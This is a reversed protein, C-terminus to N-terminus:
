FSSAWYNPYKGVNEFGMMMPYCELDQPVLLFVSTRVGKLLIIAPVFVRLLQTLLLIPFTGRHSHECICRFPLDIETQKRPHNQVHCALLSAQFRHPLLQHALDIQFFWRRGNVLYVQSTCLEFLSVFLLRTASFTLATWWVPRMRCSCSTVSHLMCCGPVVITISNRCAVDHVRTHQVNTRSPSCLLLCTPCSHRSKTQIVLLEFFSSNSVTPPTDSTQECTTYLFLKTDLECHGVPGRTSRSNNSLILSSISCLTRYAILLTLWGCEGCKFGCVINDHQFCLLRICIPAM